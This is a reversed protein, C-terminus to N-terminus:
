SQGKRNGPLTAMNLGVMAVAFQSLHFDGAAGGMLAKRPSRAHGKGPPPWKPRLSRVYTVGHRVWGRLDDDGEVVEADV